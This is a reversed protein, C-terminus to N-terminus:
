RAELHSSLVHPSPLTTTTTSSPLMTTTSSPLTTRTSSPPSICFPLSSDEKWHQAVITITKGTRRNSLHLFNCHLQAFSLLLCPDYTTAYCHSLKVIKTNMAHPSPNHWRHDPQGQLGWLPHNSKLFFFFKVM